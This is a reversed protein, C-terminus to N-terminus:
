RDPPFRDPPFGSKLLGVFVPLSFISSPDATLEATSCFARSSDCCLSVYGGMSFIPTITTSENGEKPVRVAIRNM